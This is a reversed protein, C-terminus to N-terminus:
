SWLERIEHPLCHKIDQTEGGTLHKRLVKFVGRTIKEPDANVDLAFAESIHAIFEEQKREKVPKGSPHWGEYFFGRVLMPLQAAFQAVENVPLRDRLTHLVVSLAHYARHRDDWGLERMLDDLWINTTQITSDFVKLGTASM